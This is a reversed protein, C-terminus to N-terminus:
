KSMKLKAEEGQKAVFPSTHNIDQEGGRLFL